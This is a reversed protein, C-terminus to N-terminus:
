IKEEKQDNLIKTQKKISAQHLLKFLDKVFSKKLSLKKGWVPRTEFVDNWRDMDLIALDHERKYTGVREVLEMRRHIAELIERDAQDIQHRIEALKDMFEPHLSAADRKRLSGMIEGLQQPTVQQKADSWASSPTPHTEIMLGDYNLDLAIQSLSQIYKSDGAIHSPDCLIPLDPFHQKFEIAIQWLPQNRYRSDGYASFGRHIAGLKKINRGALREIAGIWLALDPNIPNKVLVPKDTGELADAIEQVTFPNVTSRAGLWLVDIDYKLAAEVHAPNAVEVAFALGTEEKIDKIWKLADVGVGEFSNPRTRPKWVGARVLKIGKAQVALATERLQEPTEASCPGAIYLPDSGYASIWKKEM